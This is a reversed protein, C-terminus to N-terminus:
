EEEESEKGDQKESTEGEVEEGEVEEEVPEPEEARPEEVIAIPREPETLITVGTPVIVDAVTVKNGVEALGEVNVKIENPLDRPFAEVEVHDLQRVVLLSIKLAPAEGEFVLPVETEVKENQKIIDFVIHRLKHKAPDFDADKIITFYDRDGVKLNVPHHKGAEQYVKLVDSYSGSVTISEKGPDHVVGPVVGEKRMQNLGKRVQNRKNLLLTIEENSV